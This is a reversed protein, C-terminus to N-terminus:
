LFFLIMIFIQEFKTLLINLDCKIKRHQMADDLIILDVDSFKSIKDM